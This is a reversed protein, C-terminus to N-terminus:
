SIYYRFAYLSAVLAGISTGCIFHINIKLEEIARLVGIHSAGLGAGGGLALGITKKEFQKM